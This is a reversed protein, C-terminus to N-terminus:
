GPERDLRKVMRQVQIGYAEPSTKLTEFGFDEYVSIAASNKVDVDLELAPSWQRRALTEVESMLM